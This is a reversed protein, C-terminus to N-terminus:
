YSFHENSKVNSKQTICAHGTMAYVTMKTNIPQANEKRQKAIWMKRESSQLFCICSRWGARRKFAQEASTSLDHGWASVSKCVLM